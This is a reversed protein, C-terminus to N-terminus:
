LGPKPEAESMRIATQRLRPVSIIMKRAPSCVTGSSTMSAADISPAPLTRLKKLM